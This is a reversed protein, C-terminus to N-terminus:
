DFVALGVGLVRPGAVLAAWPVVGARWRIAAVVAAAFSRHHTAPLLEVGEAGGGDVSATDGRKTRESMYIPHGCRMTHLPADTPLGGGQMWEYPPLRARGRWGCFRLDGRRGAGGVGM